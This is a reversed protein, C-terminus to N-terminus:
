CKKNVSVEGKLTPNKMKVGFVKWVAEQFDNCVSEKDLDSFVVELGHRKRNGIHGDGLMAGIIYALQPDLPKPIKIPSSKGCKDTLTLSDYNFNVKGALELFLKIPMFNHFYRSYGSSKIKNEKLKKILNKVLMKDAIKLFENDSLLKLINPPEEEINIEKASAVYDGKGLLSAEKWFIEGEQNITLLPHERTCLLNNGMETKIKILGEGPLKWAKSAELFRIMKGDYGLVKEKIEAVEGKKNGYDREEFNFKKFFESIKVPGEETFILTEGDVCQPTSFIIEANQWLKKRSEAPTKGTFLEQTSFLEPLHSKFYKLHQEALPRTPALFLIKEQPFRSLRDIALMLAILTKGIGTPLVVLCNKEKCTSFIEEQYKRPQINKLYKKVNEM